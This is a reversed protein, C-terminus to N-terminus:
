AASNRAAAVESLVDFPYVSERGDSWRVTYAYNGAPAISLPRVDRPVSQEDNQGQGPCQLRLERPEVVVESGALERMRAAHTTEGAAEGEDAPVDGAEYLFRLVMGRGQREDYALTPSPGLEGAPRAEGRQQESGRVVSLGAQRRAVASVVTVALDHYTAAVESTPSSAGSSEGQEGGKGGKGGASAPHQM